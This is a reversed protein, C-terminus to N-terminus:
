WERWLNFVQDMREAKLIEDQCLKFMSLCAQFICKVGICFICDLIRLEQQMPIHGIFLCLLWPQCIIAIPFDMKTLHKYIQPLHKRLMLELVETDVSSGIMARNYYNPLIDECIACLLWFCDEEDVYLLLLACVINM